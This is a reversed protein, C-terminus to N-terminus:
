RRGSRTSRLQALLIVRSRIREKRRRRREGEKRGRTDSQDEEHPAPGVPGNEEERPIPPLYSLLSELVIGGAAVPVPKHVPQMLDLLIKPLPRREWIEGNLGVLPLPDSTSGTANKAARSSTGTTERNRPAM